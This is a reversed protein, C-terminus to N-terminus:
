AVVGTASEDHESESASSQRKRDAKKEKLVVMAEVNQQSLSGGDAEAITTAVVPPTQTSVKKPQKNSNKDSVDQTKGFGLQQIELSLEAAEKLKTRLKANLEQAQEQNLKKTESFQAGKTIGPIYEVIESLEKTAKDYIGVWKVLAASTTSEFTQADVTWENVVDGKSDRIVREERNRLAKSKASGLFIAVGPNKKDHNVLALIRAALANDDNLIKVVEQINQEKNRARREEQIIWIPKKTGGTQIREVMKPDKTENVPVQITTSSGEDGVANNRYRNKKAM